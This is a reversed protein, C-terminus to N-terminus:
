IPNITPIDLHLITWGLFLTAEPAAFKEALEKLYGTLVEM